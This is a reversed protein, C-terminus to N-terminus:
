KRKRQPPMTWIVTVKGCTPCKHAVEGGKRNPQVLVTHGCELTEYRKM